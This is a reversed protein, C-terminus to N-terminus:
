RMDTTMSSVMECPNDRPQPASTMGQSVGQLWDIYNM